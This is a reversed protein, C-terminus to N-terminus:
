WAAMRDQDVHADIPTANLTSHGLLTQIDVLEVGTNLLNAAHTHRSKHPSIKKEIGAKHLM